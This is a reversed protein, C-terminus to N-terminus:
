VEAENWCGFEKLRNEIRFDLKFYFTPLLPIQDKWTNQSSFNGHLEWSLQKLKRYCLWVNKTNISIWHNKNPLVQETTQWGCQSFLYDIIHFRVPFVHALTHRGSGFYEVEVVEHIKMSPLILVIKTLTFAFIVGINRTDDTCHSVATQWSDHFLPKWSPTLELLLPYGATPIYRFSLAGFLCYRLVPLLFVKNISPSLLQVLCLLVPCFKDLASNSESDTFTWYVFLDSM